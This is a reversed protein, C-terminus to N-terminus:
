PTPPKSRDEQVLEELKDVALKICDESLFSDFFRPNNQVLTVLRDLHPKIQEYYRLHAEVIARAEKFTTPM